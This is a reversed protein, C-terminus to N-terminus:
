SDSYIQFCERTLFSYINLLPRCGIYILPIISQTDTWTKAFLENFHTIIRSSAAPKIFIIQTAPKAYLSNSIRLVQIKIPYYIIRQM